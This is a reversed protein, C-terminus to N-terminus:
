MVGANEPCINFHRVDEIGQMMHPDNLLTPTAHASSTGQKGWFQRPHMRPSLLPYLSRHVLHMPLRYINNSMVIHRGDILTGKGNFFPTKSFIWHHPTVVTEYMICISTHLHTFVDDPPSALLYPPMRDPRPSPGCFAIPACCLHATFPKDTASLLCNILHDLTLLCFPVCTCAGQLGIFSSLRPKCTLCMYSPDVSFM